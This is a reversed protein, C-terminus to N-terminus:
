NINVTRNIGSKIGTKEGDYVRNALKHKKYGRSVLKQIAKKYKKKQKLRPNNVDKKHTRAKPIGENRFM